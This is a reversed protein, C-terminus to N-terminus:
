LLKLKTEPTALKRLAAFFRHVERGYLERVQYTLIPPRPLVRADGGGVNRSREVHNRATKDLGCWPGTPASDWKSLKILTQSSGM